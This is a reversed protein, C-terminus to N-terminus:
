SKSAGRKPESRISRPLILRVITGTGRESELALRGELRDMVMSHVIHLGLGTHVSLKFVPTATIFDAWSPAHNSAESESFKALSRRM